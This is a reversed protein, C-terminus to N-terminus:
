GAYGSGARESWCVFAFRLQRANWSCTTIWYNWSKRLWHCSAIQRGQRARSDAIRVSTRAISRHASRLIASRRTADLRRHSFGAVHPFQGLFAGGRRGIVARDLTQPTKVRLQELGPATARHGAPNDGIATRFALFSFPQVHPFALRLARDAIGVRRNISAAAPKPRQNTQFRIYDLLTPNRSRRRTVATTQNVRVWWRLFHLLDHAYSRLTTEAVSRIRQQDLFPQGLASGSRHRGDRSVPERRQETAHPQAVRFRM